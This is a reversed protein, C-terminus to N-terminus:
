DILNDFANNDLKLERTEKNWTNLIFIDVNDLQSAFAINKILKEPYIYWGNFFFM